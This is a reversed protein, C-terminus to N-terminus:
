SAAGEGAVPGNTTSRYAIRCLAIFHDEDLPADNQRASGAAVIALAMTHMGTPKPFRAVLVDTIEHSLKVAQDMLQDWAESENENM